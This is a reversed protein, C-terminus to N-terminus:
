VPLRLQIICVISHSYRISYFSSTPPPPPSPLPPLPPTVAVPDRQHLFQAVCLITIHNYTRAIICFVGNRRINHTRHHYEKVASFHKCLLSRSCRLRIIAAHHYLKPLVVIFAFCFALLYRFSREFDILFINEIKIIRHVYKHCLM